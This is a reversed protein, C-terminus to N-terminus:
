KLMVMKRTDIGGVTDVSYFYVGSACREGNDGTGDWVVSGATGAGLETDLLTRVVRGAADHVRIAIPGAERVSYSITTVPNFPNPHNQSVSVGTVESGVGMADERYETYQPDWNTWGATWQQSMPLSPDFAGRYTVQQFYPDGALEPDAVPNWMASGILESGAAPRPDPNTLDHMNTLMMASPNRPASGVNLFAPTDFWENVQNWRTEDHVHTSGTPMLHAQVSTYRIKLEGALAYSKCTADRISVGWPWGMLCSNFTKHKTARRNVVEYEFKNPVLGFVPLLTDVRAPGVLTCNSFIPATFPVATTGTADNDSEFGNSQGALDSMEITRLGFCFQHRGVHGFDTDFNDDLDCFSVLYNADVTGGFWEMGDDNTYSTQVHHIETGRGVGGMTLGNVENGEVIRYGPFEIRVYCFEGSDDDPNTGGYQHPELLGEILPEVKNTPASGLIIVGAWDGKERDGPDHNSCFVIPREPTGTAHVQAGRDVLLCAGTDALVVTGPEITLAFTSDVIYLGTLVYLTDAALSRDVAQHYPIMPNGLGPGLIVEPKWGAFAQATLVTSLALLLLISTKFCSKM